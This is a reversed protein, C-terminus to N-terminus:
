PPAPDGTTTAAALLIPRAQQRAGALEAGVANAALMLPTAFVLSRAIM